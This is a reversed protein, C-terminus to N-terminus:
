KEAWEGPQVCLSQFSSELPIVWGPIMVNSSLMSTSKLSTASMWVVSGLDFAFYM